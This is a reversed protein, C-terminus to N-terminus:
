VTFLRQAPNSLAAGAWAPWCPYGWASLETGVIVRRAPEIKFSGKTPSRPKIAALDRNEDLWLDGVPIVTAVSSQVELDPGACGQVVHRNTIIYGTDLVFGSGVGGTKKCWVWIISDVTGKAGPAIADYLWQTAIPVANETDTTTQGSVIIGSLCLFITKLM